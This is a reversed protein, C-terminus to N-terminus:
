RAGLLKDILVPYVVDVRQYPQEPDILDHGLKLSEPFEYTEVRGPARSRWMEALRAIEPNSVAPDAGVTVLVLERAAPPRRRARDEVAAGLRMIEAMARTSFRPYVRTPGEVNERKEDDWWLFRNPWVLGVRTLPRALWAPAM